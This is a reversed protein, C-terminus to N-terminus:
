RARGVKAIYIDIDKRRWRPRGRVTVSQPIEGALAMRRLSRKDVKLLESLDDPTLLSNEPKAARADARLGRLEKIAIVLLQRLSAGELDENVSKM